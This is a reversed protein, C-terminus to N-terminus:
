SMDNTLFNAFTIILVITLWQLNQLTKNRMIWPVIIMLEVVYRGCVLTYCFTMLNLDHRQNPIVQIQM